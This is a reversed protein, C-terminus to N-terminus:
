SRDVGMDDDVLSEMRVGAVRAYRLVTIMDPERLGREYESIRANSRVTKLQRPLQSQSLGRTLRIPLLKEALRKPRQRKTQGMIFLPRQRCGGNAAGTGQM